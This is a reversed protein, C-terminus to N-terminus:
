KIKLDLLKRDGIYADIKDGERHGFGLGRGSVVVEVGDDISTVINNNIVKKIVM